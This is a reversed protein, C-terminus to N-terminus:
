LELAQLRIILAVVVVVLVAQGVLGELLVLVAVAVAQM